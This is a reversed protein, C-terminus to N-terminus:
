FRRTTATHTMWVWAQDFREGDLLRPAHYLWSRPSLSPFENVAPLVTCSFGHAELGEEFGLGAAYPWSRAHQWRSFELPVLLVRGRPGGSGTARRRGGAVFHATPKARGGFRISRTRCIVDRGPLDMGGASTFLRLCLANRERLHARTDGISQGVGCEDLDKFGCGRPYPIVLRVIGRCSAAYSFWIDDMKMGDDFPMDPLLRRVIDRHVLEMRGLTIDIAVPEAIARGNVHETATYRRNGATFRRGELAVVADPRAQGSLHELTGEDVCIDNDQFLIYEGRAVLAAAFRAKSGANWPAQM